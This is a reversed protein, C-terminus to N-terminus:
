TTVASATAKDMVILTPMMTALKGLLGHLHPQLVLQARINVQIRLTWPRSSERRGNAGSTAGITAPIGQRHRIDVCEV